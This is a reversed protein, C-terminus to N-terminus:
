TLSPVSVSVVPWVTLIPRSVRKDALRAAGVFVLQKLSLSTSKWRLSPALFGIAQRDRDVNRPMFPLLMAVFPICMSILSSEYTPTSWIEPILVYDRSLPTDESAWWWYPWRIHM